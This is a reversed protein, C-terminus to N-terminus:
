PATLFPQIIVLVDIRRTRFISTQPHGFVGGQVGFIVTVKLTNRNGVQSSKVIVAQIFIGIADIKIRKPQRCTPQVQRM